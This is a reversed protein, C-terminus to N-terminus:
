SEWGLLSTVNVNATAILWDALSDCLKVDTDSPEQEIVVYVRRFKEPTEGDAYVRQSVEVNHRDRAVQGNKAPITTHRIKATLAQTAGRYAYESAYSDQNIKVLTINGDAHPLVLTNGFM